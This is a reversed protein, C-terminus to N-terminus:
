RFEDPLCLLSIGKSKGSEIFFDIFIQVAKGVTVYFIDMSRFIHDAIGHEIGIFVYM